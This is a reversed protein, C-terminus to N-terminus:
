DPDGDDSDGESEEADDNKAAAAPKEPKEGSKEGHNKEDSAAKSEGAAKSEDAAAKSSDAQKAKASEGSKAKASEDFKAAEDPKTKVSSATQGAPKVALDGLAPIDRLTAIISSFDCLLTAFPAPSRRIDNPLFSIRRILSFLTEESRLAALEQLKALDEQSVILFEQPRELIKVKLVKNLYEIFDLMFRRLDRGSNQLEDLAKFSSSQDARLLASALQFNFEDEVIGVMNLVDEITIKDKHGAILQDLLSIADRMAGNALKAVMEVADKDASEGEKELIYELRAVIDELPISRFEYSQCRSIVTAPIRQPDTTALIFVVHSPPEELTKLLANFAGASLMHVEDIIYIKRKGAIPAFAAEETLARINDVSNNSAADLETVDLMSGENIKRCNECKNCPNGDQLDLCNLAKALIKATSTKGTGRMGKFLYAHAFNDTKVAQKLPITVQPQGVTEDFTQPRFERYLAVRSM